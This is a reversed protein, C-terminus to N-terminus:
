KTSPKPQQNSATAKTQITSQNNSDNDEPRGTNNKSITYSTKHPEYKDFIRNEVEEDLTNFYADPSVGSAAILFTYSGGAELFLSKMMDFFKQRNVLSTPLYYVEVKNRKDKIINENIVYNLESQLEQIWSYIQANILELNNQQSSYNGSGSGNLLSSAIGLDLSIKDTLNAENKEDFIDTAKVDLSDIKTGSSVTFFSTGGRNNKTLVASKVKEHQDEQQTRTLACSGKDKGEPLTQYIIKNNLERLVNRKTDVFEDQYLIDSIAAIALPRGWPESIKCKIKHAITHKNDLVVWSDSARKGKEWAFYAERIESPYKKLKREKNKQTNCQEDFYRLNFAIVNRSNKRGVIKCYEYPLPVLAANMGLDNIEMINEVDFDNMYKDYNKLKNTVEFYYFCTGEVMDTFLADRIFQKDRINELTSLMLDKNKSLKGKAFMRKKGYVVRDLCPLAVMYDIANTVVGESNYVFKSLKRTLAHNTIPDKIIMKIEEPSFTSYINCGFISDFDSIPVTGFYSNFEYSQNQVSSSNTESINCANPDAKNKPPRGRKRRIEEPM